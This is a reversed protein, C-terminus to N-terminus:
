DLRTRGGSCGVETVCEWVSLILTNILMEIWVYVCVHCREGGGGGGGGECVCVCM